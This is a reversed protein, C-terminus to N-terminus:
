QQNIEPSFAPQVQQKGLKRLLQGLLKQEESSLVAFEETISRVHQPFIFQILEKGEATLVILSVRRDSKDAERRVLGRKELNDIVLTINGGSKLLKSGIECQPLSGLHYITELVGFQSETLGAMTGRQILRAALSNTARTLKILTDLALIENEKGVYHTPM